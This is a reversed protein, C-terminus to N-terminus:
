MNTNKAQQVAEALRKIRRLGADWTAGVANLQAVASASTKTNRL